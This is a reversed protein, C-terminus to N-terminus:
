GVKWASRWAKRGVVILGKPGPSLAADGVRVALHLAGGEAFSVIDGRRSAIPNVPSGLLGTAMDEITHWGHAIMFRAAGIESKPREVDSLLVVGTLAEVASQAFCGCDTKGYEYEKNRWDNALKILRQEWDDRREM